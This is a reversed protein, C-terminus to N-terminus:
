KFCIGSLWLCVPLIGMAFFTTLLTIESSKEKGFEGYQEVVMPMIAACPCAMSVVCITKILPDVPLPLMVAFAAIPFVISRVLSIDLSAKHHLVKSIGENGALAGIYILSLPTSMSGLTSMAEMVCNPVLRILGSLSFILGAFVMVCNPNLLKNFTEKLSANRGKDGQLVRVAYTWVYLHIGLFGPSVYFAGTKGFFMMAIPLGIFGNNTTALTVELMALYKDEWGRARCYARLVKGGILSAAYQAVALLFFVVLRESDIENSVITVFLLSPCTLKMVLSGIGTNIASTVINKRNAYYGVGVMAFLVFFREFM